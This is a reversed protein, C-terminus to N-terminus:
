SLRECFASIDAKQNQAVSQALAGLPHIQNPIYSQFLNLLTQDFESQNAVSFGCGAQIFQEAEPFKQHNPGFILPLGFAAAEITNHLGKGFAGGILAISGFRYSEALHGITDLILIQTTPSITNSCESFRLANTKIKELCQNQIAECFSTNINHPAILIQGHTLIEPNKQFFQLILDIEPQWASGLILTPKQTLWKQLPLPLSTPQLTREVARNFKNDVFVFTNTLGQEIAIQHMKPNIVGIANLQKILILWPKGLTKFLWHNPTLSVGLAYCPINRHLTQQIFHYWFDYRIFIATSPNWQALCRKASGPRDLPLYAKSQNLELKSHEYGSPSFFTFLIHRQSSAAQLAAAIPKAMEFEGLSACHIWILDKPANGDKWWGDNLRVLTERQGDRLKRVKTNWLALLGIGMAYCRMALNYLVM